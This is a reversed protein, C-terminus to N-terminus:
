VYCSTAYQTVYEKKDNVLCCELKCKYKLNSKLGHIEAHLFDPQCFNVLTIPEHTRYTWFGKKKIKLLENTSNLQFEIFENSHRSVSMSSCKYPNIFTGNQSMYKNLLIHSDTFLMAQFVDKYADVYLTIKYTALNSFTNEPIAYTNGRLLPHQPDSEYFQKLSPLVFHLSSPKRIPKYNAVIEKFTNPHAGITTCKGPVYHDITYDFCDSLLPIQPSPQKSQMGKNETRYIDPNKSYSIGYHCNWGKKRLSAAFKRNQSEFHVYWGIRYITHNLKFKFMQDDPLLFPPNVEVHFTMPIRFYTNNNVYCHIYLKMHEIVPSDGRWQALTFAKHLMNINLHGTSQLTCQHHEVFYKPSFTFVFPSPIAYKKLHNIPM